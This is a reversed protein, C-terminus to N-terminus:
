KLKKVEVKVKYRYIEEDNIADILEELIFNMMNEPLTETGGSIYANYVATSFESEVIYGNEAISIKYTM